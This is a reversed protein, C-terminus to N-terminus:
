YAGFQMIICTDAYEVSLAPRRVAFDVDRMPRRTDPAALLVGGKLAFNEAYESITLRELFSELAYLQILDDTPRGTRRAKRQLALYSQGCITEKAPRRTM